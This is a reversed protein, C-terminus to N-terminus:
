LLPIDKKEAFSPTGHKKSTVLKEQCTYFVPGTKNLINRLAGFARKKNTKRACSHACGTEQPSVNKPEGSLLNREVHRKESKTSNPWRLTMRFWEVAGPGTKGIQWFGATFGFCCLSECPCDKSMERKKAHPKEPSMEVTAENRRNAEIQSHTLGLPVMKPCTFEGGM